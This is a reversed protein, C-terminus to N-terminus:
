SPDSRFLASPYLKPQWDASLLTPMFGISWSTMRVELLWEVLNSWAHREPRSVSLIATCLVCAVGGFYKLLLDLYKALQDLRFFLCLRCKDVFVSPTRVPLSYRM